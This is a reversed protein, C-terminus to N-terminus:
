VPQIRYTAGWGSSCFGHEGEMSGGKGDKRWQGQKQGYGHEGVARGIRRRLSTDLVRGLRRLRIV